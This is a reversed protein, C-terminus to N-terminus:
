SPEGDGFDLGAHKLADFIASRNADAKFAVAWLDYSPKRCTRVEDFGAELLLRALRHESFGTQHRMYHNGRAISAGHGYLMDLPTIPGAPSLYAISDLGEKLITEAVALLDPCRLLGFGRQSLVRAFEGFAQPVEHGNLHEITHSTWLADFSASRVSDQMASISSIIDPETRPDIDLRTEHWNTGHFVSHLKNRNAPGCGVHLVGNQRPNKLPTTVPALLDSRLIRRATIAMSM